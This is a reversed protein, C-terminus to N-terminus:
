SVPSFHPSVNRRDGVAHEDVFSRARSGNRSDKGTACEGPPGPEVGTARSRLVEAAVQRRYGRVRILERLSDVIFPQDRVVTELFLAPAARSSESGDDVRARVRLGDLPTEIFDFLTEAYQALGDATKRSLDDALARAYLIELFAAASRGRDGSLRQVLKGAAQSIVDRDATKKTDM